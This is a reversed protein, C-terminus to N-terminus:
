RLMPNFTGKEVPVSQNKRSKAIVPRQGTIDGLTRMAEDFAERPKATGIGTSIVIKVLKPAQMANAYQRQEILRPKIENRYQEMLVSM